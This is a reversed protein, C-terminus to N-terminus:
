SQEVITPKDYIDLQNIWNKPEVWQNVHICGDCFNRLRNKRKMWITKEIIKM